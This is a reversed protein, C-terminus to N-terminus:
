EIRDGEWGCGVCKYKSWHGESTCGGLYYKDMDPEESPMGWLILRIGESSLCKPCRKKM